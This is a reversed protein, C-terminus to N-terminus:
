GHRSSPTARSFPPLGTRGSADDIALRDFGCLTATRTAKVSALLDQAALSVDDSICGTVEDSQDHAIAEAPFTLGQGGPHAAAQAQIMLPQWAWPMLEDIRSNPWGQVIKTLVDAIYAQSNV